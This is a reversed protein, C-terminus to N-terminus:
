GDIGGTVTDYSRPAPWFTYVEKSPTVTGSWGEPVAHFYTGDIGTTTTGGDNSFTLTVGDIWDWTQTRVYGSITPLTILEIPTSSLFGIQRRMGKGNHELVLERFDEYTDDNFPIEFSAGGESDTVGTWLLVGDNSYLSLPANAVASGDSDTVIVPYTRTITSEYWDSVYTDDTFTITGEM